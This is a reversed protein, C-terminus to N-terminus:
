NARWTRSVFRSVTTPQGGMEASREGGVVQRALATEGNSKEGGVDYLNVKGSCPHDRISQRVSRRMDTPRQHRTPNSQGASTPLAAGNVGTEGSSPSVM